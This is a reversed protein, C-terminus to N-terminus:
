RLSYVLIVDREDDVDLGYLVSDGDNVFMSRVPRDLIYKRYPNGDWDFSVIETTYYYPLEDIGSKGFVDEVTFYKDNMYIYNSTVYPTDNYKTQVDLLRPRKGKEGSSKYKAPFDYIMKRNYLSKGDSEFIFCYAGTLTSFLYKNDDPNKMLIGETAYSKEFDSLDNYLSPYAYDLSQYKNETLDYSVFKSENNGQIGGIVIEDNVPQISEFYFPNTGNRKTVVWKSIEEIDTKCDTASIFMKASGVCEGLFLRGDNLRAFRTSALTELPGNGKKILFSEFVLKHDRKKFIAWDDPYEILFADGIQHIQMIYDIITDIEISDQVNLFYEKNKWNYDEKKVDNGPVCSIFISIFVLCAFRVQM